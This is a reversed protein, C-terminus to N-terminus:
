SNVCEDIQNDWRCNPDNKCSQKDNYDSCEAICDTDGSDTQGDCDNDLTDDCTLDGYPGEPNAGAFPDCTDGGWTGATCTEAGTNGSCEGVGCTTARSLNEDTSGDCDNDLNDCMETSPTGETCTDNGWTGATCTEQGTAACEGVGCTTSRTLNEDTSGDCNNDLNDCTEATPQNDAVCAEAGGQCTLTGTSCEGPQGTGCSGNTAGACDSDACDTMGDNDDDIGDFCGTETQICDPDSGDVLSDCDNDAGDSCTPDGPPGEQTPTCTTDDICGKKKHWRCKPDNNCQGEDNYDSCQAECNLNEDTSGDCDNDLNDCTEATAGALPDCTDGGWTGATCTEAGTNGSCEGVGCTTARSLNEDTSGDCDNDLNDCTEVTAGALPDCTDGGWTGATCTEAGTNGSCEGIGCTTARSLNEDTNGDCDNDLNDCVEATPGIEGDCIGNWAGGTCTETGASCEGVNSGCPRTDGDTCGCDEDVTGDCDEDLSGDCTEPV